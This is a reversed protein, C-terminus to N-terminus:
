PNVGQEWESFDYCKDCPNTDGIFRCTNCAVVGNRLVELALEIVHEAEFVESTNAADIQAPTMCAREYLDMVTKFNKISSKYKDVEDLRIRDARTIICTVNEQMFAYEIDEELEKFTYGCSHQYFMDVLEDDSLGKLVCMIRVEFDYLADLPEGPHEPDYYDHQNSITEVIWKEIQTRYKMLDDGM